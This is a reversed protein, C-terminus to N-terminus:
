EEQEPEDFKAFDWECEENWEEYDEDFTYEEIYTLSVSYFPVGAFGSTKGYSCKFGKLAERAADLSDYEGEVDFTGNRMGNMMRAATLQETFSDYPREKQASKIARESIEIHPETIIRYKNM